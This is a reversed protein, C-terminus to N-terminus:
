SEKQKENHEWESGQVSIGFLHGGGLARIGIWCNVTTGNTISPSLASGEQDPADFPMRIKSRQEPSSPLSFATQYTVLTGRVRMFYSRPTRSQSPFM